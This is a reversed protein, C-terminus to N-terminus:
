PLGVSCSAKAREDLVAKPWSPTSTPALFRTLYQLAKPKPWVSPWSKLQLAETMGSGDSIVSQSVAHDAQPWGTPCCALGEPGCSVMMCFATVAAAMALPPTTM